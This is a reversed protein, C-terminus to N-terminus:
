RLERIVFNDFRGNVNPADFTLVFVGVSGSTEISLTEVLTDNIYFSTQGGRAIILLRNFNNVPKIASSRTPSVINRIWTAPAFSGIRYVQNSSRVGFLNYTGADPNGAFIVGIEGQESLSGAVLQKVDVEICFNGSLSRTPAWSWAITNDWKTLVRYQGDEAYSWLAGQFDGVYWGSHPDSFADSFIIQGCQSAPSTIELTVAVTQPSNLAGEATFTISGRHTGTSLGQTSIRVDVTTSGTSISGSAPEITIWPVSITARWRLVGGGGNRVTLTQSSPTEGSAARFSLNTASVQLLPQAAELTLTVLVTVPSNQAGTAEITIRGQHTGANLQGITVSVRVTMPAQGQSITGETPSLNIWNVNALARWRLVGGGGNGIKIELPSPNTGGQQGRFSLSTFNVQLIPQPQPQPSPQELALTVSVTAPSGQAGTATIIINAQHSGAALGAVNVSVQAQTSQGSSLSGRNSGLQIWSADVTAAWNMEGQGENAITLPQAAPNSGGVEGQFSLTTPRVRLSPREASGAQFSFVARPDDASSRNGKEDELVVRIIVTQSATAAVRFIFNWGQKQKEADIEVPLRVVGDEPTQDDIRIAEPNPAQIHFEKWKVDGDADRFTVKGSVKTGDAPITEHQWAVELVEPPSGQQTQAVDLFALLGIAIGILPRMIWIKRM